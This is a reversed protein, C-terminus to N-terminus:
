TQASSVGPAGTIGVTYAQAAQCRPINICAKTWRIAKTAGAALRDAMGYVKEDLQDAPVAYNILGIEAARKADMLDGTLLYEMARPYGVLQPWIISAGDGAAFGM